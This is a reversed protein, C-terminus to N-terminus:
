LQERILFARASELAQFAQPSQSVSILEEILAVRATAEEFALPIRGNKNRIYILQGGSAIVHPGLGPMDPDDPKENQFQYRGSLGLAMKPWLSEPISNSRTQELLTASASADQFAVQTLMQLAFLNEDSYIASENVRNNTNHDPRKEVMEVLVPVGEGDAVGALAVTSYHGWKEMNQQLDPVVSADGYDQLVQFVPGLQRGELERPAARAVTERAANVSDQRYEGPALEDLVKALVAVELPRGTAQLEALMVEEADLGGIQRLAEFLGTRLSSYDLFNEDSMVEVFSVDEGNELFERIAPVAAPGQAILTQLADDFDYITQETLGNHHFAIVEIDKVLDYAYEEDSHGPSAAMPSVDQPFSEAGATTLTNESPIRVVQDETVLLEPTKVTPKKTPQQPSIRSHQDEALTVSREPHSTRVPETLSTPEARKELPQGILLFGLVLIGVIATAYVVVNWRPVFRRTRKLTTNPMTPIVNM